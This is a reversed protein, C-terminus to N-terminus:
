YAIVVKNHDYNRHAWFESLPSKDSSWSTLSRGLGESSLHPFPPVPQCLSSPALIIRLSRWEETQHRPHSLSQTWWPSNSFVRCPKETHSPSLIDHHRPASHTDQSSAELFCINWFFCFSCPRKHGLRVLRIAVYWGYERNLLDYARWIRYSFAYAGGRLPLVTLSKYANKPVVATQKALQLLVDVLYRQHLHVDSWAHLVWAFVTYFLLTHADCLLPCTHSFLAITIFITLSVQTRTWWSLKCTLLSIKPVVNIFSLFLSKLYVYTQGWSFIPSLKHIEQSSWLLFSIFQRVQWLTSNSPTLHTSWKLGLADCSCLATIPM